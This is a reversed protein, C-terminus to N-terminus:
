EIVISLVFNVCSKQVSALIKTEREKKKGREIEQIKHKKANGEWVCFNDCEPGSSLGGVESDM